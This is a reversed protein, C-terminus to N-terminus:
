SYLVFNFIEWILQLYLEVPLATVEWPHNGSHFRLFGLLILWAHHCCPIKTDKPSLSWGAPGHHARSEGTFSAKECLLITRLILVPCHTLHVLLFVEDIQHQTGGPFEGRHERLFLRDCLLGGQRTRDWLSTNAGQVGRSRFCPISLYYIFHKYYLQVSACIM